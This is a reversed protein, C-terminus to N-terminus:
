VADSFRMIRSLDRLVSYLKLHTADRIQSAAWIGKIRGGSLYIDVIEPAKALSKM